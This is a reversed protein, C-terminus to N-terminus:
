RYRKARPKIGRKRAGAHTMNQKPTVWRLNDARCNMRDGDKHDVQNHEPSPQDLFALAVIRHALVNKVLGDVTLNTRAYGTQSKYIPATNGSGRYRFRGFSSVDFRPFGPIQRWEEDSNQQVAKEAFMEMQM